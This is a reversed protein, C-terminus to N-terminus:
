IGTTLGWERIWTLEVEDSIGGVEQEINCICEEETTLCLGEHKNDWILEETTLYFGGGM